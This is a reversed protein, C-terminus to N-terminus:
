VVSKRDIDIVNGDGDFMVENVTTISKGVIKDGNALSGVTVSIGNDSHDNGDYMWEHSATSVAIERPKIKLAGNVYEIEYNGTYDYQRGRIEVLVINEKDLVVGNEDRLVNKVYTASKVVIAQPDDAAIDTDVLGTNETDAYPVTAVDTACHESGDYIWDVSPTQIKLKRKDVTLTGYDWVLEYNYSRDIKGDATLVRGDLVNLTEGARTLTAASEIVLEHGDVLAGDLVYGRNELPKNDYIKKDDSTRVGVTRKQVTLTGPDVVISYNYTVDDGDANRVDFLIKNEVEGADVVSQALVIELRDSGVLSYGDAIKYRTCSFPTDDYVHTDSETKVLVERKQVTLKGIKQTIRYNATVDIGDGNLISRSVNLIPTNVTEGVDTQSRDFVTVLGDGDAFSGGTLEWASSALPKGDYEGTVDPVTIEIERPIFTIEGYETRFDYSETVDNGDVDFAKTFGLDARVLTSTKSVDVYDFKSVKITDGYVLSASHEPLEGFVVSDAIAIDVPKPTITFEHVRGYSKAGGTRESVARVYYAGARRPKQTTWEDSGVARYEYVVDGLFAGASYDFDSGYEIQSPCDVSDYVLGRTGLLAAIAALMVAFAVIIVVKYKRLAALFAALKTMKRSYESYLM